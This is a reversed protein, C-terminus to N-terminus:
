SRLAFEKVVKWATEDEQEILCIKNFTLKCPIEMSVIHEFIEDSCYSNRPHMLTIHPEHKRLAETAGQLISRRLEHFQRNDGVSPILVGTGNLFRAAPGFDITIKPHNLGVLTQLVTDIQALEDERCLTVHSQILSYQKPNFEKRIKEINHSDHEDVFLTLQIRKKIM